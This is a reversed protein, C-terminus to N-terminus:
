CTWATGCAAASRCCTARGCHSSKAHRSRRRSSPPRGAAVGRCARTCAGRKPPPRIAACRQWGQAFRSGVAEILTAPLCLNLMGRTEAIRVDFGMLIVAENPAAVQLMQPRTERAQIAFHIDTISRWVESLNELMLKIVGDIVNHEIETLARDAATSHGRGGLMRDIMTFAVAPNLELASLGDVPSM